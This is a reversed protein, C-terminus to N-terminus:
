NLGIAIWTPNTMFSTDSPCFKESSKQGGRGTMVRSGISCPVRSATDDYVSGKSEERDDRVSVWVTVRSLPLVTGTSFVM